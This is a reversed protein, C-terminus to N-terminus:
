ASFWSQPRPVNCQKSAYSDFSPRSWRNLPSSGMNKPPRVFLRADREHLYNALEQVDFWDGGIERLTQPDFSPLPSNSISQPQDLASQYETTQSLASLQELHSSLCSPVEKFSMYSKKNLRAHLASRFVSTISARTFLSLLLRFPRKLTTLPVSSNDLILLGEYLCAIRLQEIFDSVEMVAVDGPKFFFLSSPHHRLLSASPQINLPGPSGDESLDLLSRSTPAFSSLRSREDHTVNNLSGEDGLDKASSLCIQVTERLHETLEPHSTLVRSQLLIDSLRIVSESMKQAAAELQAVRKNLVEVGAEKRSRYARQALRVQTRRREKKNKELWAEIVKRPRGRKRSPIRATKTSAHEQQPQPQSDPTLCPSIITDAPAHHNNESM